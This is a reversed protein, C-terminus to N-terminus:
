VIAVRNIFKNLPMGVVKMIYALQFTKRFALSLMGPM